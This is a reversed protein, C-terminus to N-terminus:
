VTEALRLSLGGDTAVAALKELSPLVWGAGAEHLQEATHTGLVGIVRAGAAKGARVGSPADEVVVCEASPFGLLEAGRRYPEPDPKGVTVDEAAIWREPLPLKAARVRAEMLRSGASTVITWHAKPLSSLLERVGPLVVIDHVDEIEADEIWKLGVLPDLDPKSMKVIDIARVGHPIRFTEWNPLGFHRAWATWCREASAISSILVGDMDFLLAKAQIETM